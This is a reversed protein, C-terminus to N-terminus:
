IGMWSNNSVYDPEEAILPKLTDKVDGKLSMALCQFADAAHSDNNHLPEKTFQGTTQDVDYRYRRMCQLGDACNEEDFRCNDFITRAANISIAKKAVRKVIKVKCGAARMIQDVGRGNASIKQSEADHPLYHHGYVYGKDQLVKLFHTITKRNDQHFDIVHYLFGVPQAFWIATMDRWGLDWFTHVPKTRDYPVYGIHGNLTARRLEEAFIAGDLTQRCHGEWVTMYADYDRAKLEEMEQRLVDSFWRNHNWNVKQVISDAPRRIIFRQYTEDTELEPNFSVWIESNEKRITPILVDWSSKSVTTAEEVWAIDLGELSKIKNVNHRLGEFVFETGNKGRITTNLVEYFDSLGLSNIQDKLLKHVSDQISKQIERFCGIRLPKEAGQLLLARAMNWSKGGGRGGYIIKYRKPDFLFKLRVPFDHM